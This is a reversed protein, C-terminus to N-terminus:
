CLIFASVAIDRYMEASELKLKYQGKRRESRHRSKTTNEHLREKNCTSVNWLISSNKGDQSVPSQM